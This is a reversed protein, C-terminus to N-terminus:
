VGWFGILTYLLLVLLTFGFLKWVHVTRAEPSSKNPAALLDQQLDQSTESGTGHGGEIGDVGHENTCSEPETERMGSEEKDSGKAGRRWGRSELIERFVDLRCRGGGLFHENVVDRRESEPVYEMFSPSHDQILELLLTTDGPVQQGADDPALELLNELVAGYKGARANIDAGKDLLRQIVEINGGHAAAQLVTGFMGGQINVDAREDLLLQIVEIKGCHAAAQLANGFCGGQANVDAGKDLLLRIFEINGRRAAAQM